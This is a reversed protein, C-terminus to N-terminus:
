FPVAARGRVTWVIFNNGLGGVEGGVSLKTGGALAM